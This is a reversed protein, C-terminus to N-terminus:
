GESRAPKNAWSESHKERVACLLVGCYLHRIASCVTCKSCWLNFSFCTPHGVPGTKFLTLFFFSHIFSISKRDQQRCIVWRRFWSVTLSICYRSQQKFHRFSSGSHNWHPELKGRPACSPLPENRCCPRTKVPDSGTKWQVGNPKLVSWFMVALSGFVDLPSM